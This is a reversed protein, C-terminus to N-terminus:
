ILCLNPISGVVGLARLSRELLHAVAVLLRLLFRWEGCTKWNKTHLAEQYKFPPGKNYTPTLSTIYSNHVLNM